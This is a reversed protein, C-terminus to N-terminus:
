LFRQNYRSLIFNYANLSAMPSTEHAISWVVYGQIVCSIFYLLLLQRGVSYEGPYLVRDYHSALMATILSFASTWVTYAALEMNWMILKRALMYGAIGSLMSGLSNLAPWVGNISADYYFLSEFGTHEWLMYIALPRVVMSLHLVLTLFYKNQTRYQSAKVGDGGATALASGIAFSLLCDGQLM